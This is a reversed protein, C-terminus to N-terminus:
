EYRITNAIFPCPKARGTCNTKILCIVVKKKFKNNKEIACLSYQGSGTFSGM